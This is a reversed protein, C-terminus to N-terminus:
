PRAEPCDNDTNFASEPDRPVWEDTWEEPFAYGPGSAVKRVTWIQDGVASFYIRVELETGNAARAEILAFRRTTEEDYYIEASVATDSSGTKYYYARVDGSSTSYLTRVTDEGPSCFAFQRTRAAFVGTDISQRAQRYIERVAVIECHRM